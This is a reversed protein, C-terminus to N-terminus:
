ETWCRSKKDWVYHESFEKYLYKRADVSTACMSFYETLMTKSVHNWVVLNGLNQNAHYSVFQKNPLHLQLNVVAPCIDNLSFENIRWMAEQASVWRADQFHKIEDVENQGESETVQIAVRDHGKYIYKYLYKVATIGSCVEM